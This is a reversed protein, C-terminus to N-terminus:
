KRKFARLLEPTLVEDTPLGRYFRSKARGYDLGLLECWEVLPRSEGQYEIVIVCDKNRAQEVSTAWRCNEPEYDGDRDPYRDITRTDDYGNALSWEAFAAFDNRWARCVQIGRGGYRYYDKAKRNYCRAKMGHWVEYLRTGKQGHTTSNRKGYVASTRRRHCGCSQQAGRRIDAARAVAITGCDCKCVVFWNANMCWQWGLPTLLRVKENISVGNGSQRIRIPQPCSVDLIPQLEAMGQEKYRPATLPTTATVVGGRERIKDCIHENTWM